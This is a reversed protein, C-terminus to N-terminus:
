PALHALYVLKGIMTFLPAGSLVLEFSKAWASTIFILRSFSFEKDGSHISPLDMDGLFDKGEVLINLLYAM